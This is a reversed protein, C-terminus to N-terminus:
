LQQNENKRYKNRDILRDEYDFGIVEIAASEGGIQVLMEGRKAQLLFEREGNSLGFTDQIANMEPPNQGLFMNVSANTLVSRGMKSNYFELFNQSVITLTGNRKRIRRAARNLFSATYEHGAMTEDVLMWAEEFVIRKEIEPNKKIFKEWIWTLAIYMGIPRLISEELRSVDFTVIPSNNFDIDTSTQCDFMGYVGGKKFMVLANSLKKLEASDEREAYETLKAHFDSFTPMEKKRGHHYFEGTTENFSPENVYLSKVDDTLGREKYLEAIVISVLGEQERTLGGAMVAILNLIDAVKDKIKLVKYGTSEGNDDTEDEEELDFPNIKTNSDPSINIHTGGVAKTLRVFEGEPDIIATKVGKLISRLILLSVAYTKGKGSKGFINTNGNEMGPISRDYFDILVPTRTYMNVGMFVGDKHSIESNYFPFSATLAGSSFNRYASKLYNRGFPLATKYANDQELYVPMFNMRRGKLRNDLMQSQKLLVDKSEAYLNSVLQVYFLNEYNQELRERQQYLEEINNRLRTVNKISGKELEASLQAEFQTIKNTLENLADREDAPEIYFATDMDGDYNYVSDLWGVSVNSPYGNLVFSRVYKNGVKMYDPNSRDFSPPAFLDKITRMGRGLANYEIGNEDIKEKKKRKLNESNTSNTKKKKKLNKILIKNM